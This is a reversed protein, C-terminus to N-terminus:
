RSVLPIPLEFDISVVLAAGAARDYKRRAEDRRYEIKTKNNEGHLAYLNTRHQPRPDICSSVCGSRRPDLSLSLTRTMAKTMTTTLLSLSLENKEEM